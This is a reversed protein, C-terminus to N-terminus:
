GIVIGTVDGDGGQKRNEEALEGLMGQLFAGFAQARKREAAAMETPTKAQPITGGDLIDLQSPELELVVRGNEKSFWEIYPYPVYPYFLDGADIHERCQQAFMKRREERETGTLGLEDWSSEHEAMLRQALEETWPGLPQGATIDGVEGRQVRAFGEMYTGKRGLAENEDDSPRPNRLRIVEGRIDEHFDGALAFVVKLPRQGRRFFRMWGTVKEPIRNDLDGDILNSYPRWAMSKQMTKQDPDVKFKGRRTPSLSDTILSM